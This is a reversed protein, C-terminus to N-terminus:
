LLISKWVIKGVANLRISGVVCTQTRHHRCALAGTHGRHAAVHRTANLCCSNM